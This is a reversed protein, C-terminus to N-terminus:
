RGHEHRQMGQIRAQSGLARNLFDRERGTSISTTGKPMFRGAPVTEVRNKGAMAVRRKSGAGHGMDDEQFVLRIKVTTFRSFWSSAPM